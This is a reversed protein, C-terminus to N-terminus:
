AQTTALARTGTRYMVKTAPDAVPAEAKDFEATFILGEITEETSIRTLAGLETGDALRFETGFHKSKLSSVPLVTWGKAGIRKDAHNLEPACVSCAIYKPLSEVEARTALIPWSPASDDGHWDRVRDLNAFYPEWAADRDVFPRVSGCTPAHVKGSGSIIYCDGSDLWENMARKEEALKARMQALLEDDSLYRLSRLYDEQDSLAEAAAEELEEPSQTM